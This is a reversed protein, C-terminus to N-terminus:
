FIRFGTIVDLIGKTGKGGLRFVRRAIKKFSPDSMMEAMLKEHALRRQRPDQIRYIAQEQKRWAITQKKLRYVDWRTLDTDFDLLNIFVTAMAGESGDTLESFRLTDVFFYYYGVAIASLVVLLFLLKMAM